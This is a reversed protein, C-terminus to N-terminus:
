PGRDLEQYVHGCHQHTPTLVPPHPTAAVVAARPMRRSVVCGRFAVVIAGTDKNLSVYAQLNLPTYEAVYTVNM